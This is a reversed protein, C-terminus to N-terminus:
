PPKPTTEELVDELEWRTELLEGKMAAEVLERAQAGAEGTCLATLTAKAQAQGDRIQTVLATIHDQLEARDTATSM